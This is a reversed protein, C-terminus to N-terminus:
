KEEPMLGIPKHELSKDRLLNLREQLQNARRLAEHYESKDPRLAAAAQWYGIAQQLDEKGFAASGQSFLAAAKRNMAAQIKGWLAEAGKGDHRRYMQALQSAKILDGSQMAATIQKANVERPLIGKPLRAAAVIQKTGLKPLAPISLASPMNQRIAALTKKGQATGPNLRMYSEIEVYAIEPLKKRLFRKAERFAVRARHHLADHYFERLRGYVDDNPDVGQPADYAHVDSLLRADEQRRQRLLKEFRLQRMNWEMQARKKEMKVPKITVAKAQDYAWMAAAWKKQREHKKATRLYHVFVRRRVPEITQELFRHSQMYDQHDTPMALVRARARMIRGHEFDRQIIVLTNMFRLAESGTKILKDVTKDLGIVNTQCAVLLLLLSLVCMVRLIVKYM